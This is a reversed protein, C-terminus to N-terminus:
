VQDLTYCFALQQQASWSELLAPILIEKEDKPGLERGLKKCTIAASNALSVRLLILAHEAM